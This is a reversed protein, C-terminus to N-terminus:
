SKSSNLITISCNRGSPYRSFYFCSSIGEFHKNIKNNNKLSNELSLTDRAQIEDTAHDRHSSDKEGDDAVSVLVSVALPRGKFSYTHYTSDKVIYAAENQAVVQITKHSCHEHHVSGNIKVGRTSTAEANSSM